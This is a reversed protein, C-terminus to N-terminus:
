KGYVRRAFRELAARHMAAAENWYWARDASGEPFRRGLTYLRHTQDTIAQIEPSVIQVEATGGNPMQVQVNASPYGAKRGLETFKDDVTIVPFEQGLRAILQDKAEVTNAVIQAALNDGITRAPKGSAVKEQLRELGKQPRLRDFNAGPVSAAIRSLRTNLDPAAQNALRENQIVDNSPQLITRGSQQDPQGVKAADAAKVPAPSRALEAQVQPPEQKVKVLPVQGPVPKSEASVKQVAPADQTMNRGMAPVNRMHADPSVPPVQARLGSLKVTRLRGDALRVVAVNM